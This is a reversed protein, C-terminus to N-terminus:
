TSITPPTSATRERDVWPVMAPLLILNGLLGGLMALSVLVGFYILPIFHSIALVSFGASLALTAFVIAVGVQRGTEDLSENVSLGERRARLYGSLYHISSDITLGISVSAIMATGINVPVGALGMGGLLVLIPLVNPVLAVLSILPRRFALVMMVLLASGAISFSLMQDRLLSEILYTLLVFLGATKAEPFSERAVSEVTEIIVRKSEAEQRERSRLVIRMRGEGPNYLSPVFEPQLKAIQQLDANPDGEKMGEPLLDLGDTVALVKTLPQVGEIEIDRLRTALTRVKELYDNTLSAPAPFNVEWTGAGGLRDEVFDLAVVIPSDTRFNKSFDTEIDLRTLGTAAVGALALALISVLAARRRAFGTLWSLAGSLRPHRERGEITSDRHQPRAGIITGFPTLMATALMVTGTGLATMLGFSRVPMVESSTLALFGAATTAGTWFIPTALESVTQKLADVREYRRRFDRFHVAIHTITAVAVITVISNLMSSVMSLETGSLKLIARTWLVAAATVVLPLAVWRASRFLVLLVVGLLGLSFLFLVRGDEEVYEFADFIQIPEGAVYAKPDHRNAIERLRAFTDERPATAEGEPVLRLVVATTKNDSGILIGRSFNVADSQRQIAYRKAIAELIRNNGFKKQAMEAAFDIANKIVRDLDQTSARSVGGVRSLQNSFRRIRTAAAPNLSGDRSNILNPEEWAVIVFEDGGFLRKSEQYRLLLPDDDAYMSEISRDLRLNLAPFISIVALIAALAFLLQRRRVLLQAFADTM